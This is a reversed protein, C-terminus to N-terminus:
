EVYEIGVSYYRRQIGTFLERQEDAWTCIDYAVDQTMGEISCLADFHAEFGFDNPTNIAYFVEGFKEIMKRAIEPTVGPICMSYLINEQKAERKAREVSEYIIPVNSTKFKEYPGPKMVLDLHLAMVDEPLTVVGKEVLEEIAERDLGDINMADKSCFQLTDRILKEKDTM